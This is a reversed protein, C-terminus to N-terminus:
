GGPSPTGDHAVDAPERATEPTLTTRLKGLARFGLVAMLLGIQTEMITRFHQEFNLGLAQAFGGLVCLVIWDMLVVRLVPMGQDQGERDESKRVTTLSIRFACAAAVTCASFILLLAPKSFLDVWAWWTVPLRALSGLLLVSGWLGLLYMGALHRFTGRPLRAPRGSTDDRTNPTSRFARWASASLVAMLIFSVVLAIGQYFTAGRAEVTATRHLMMFALDLFTLGLIATIILGTRRM